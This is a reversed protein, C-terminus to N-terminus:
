SPRPAPPLLPRMWEVVGALSEQSITHPMRYERYTWRANSQDFLERSRRGFQIPLIPDETGHVIHVHLDALSRWRLELHTGEPVYGSNAAVGRFLAPRTLSAAYSMVTGMSFGFFFVQRPDVPYLRLADDIFTNLRDCSERFMAENPEGISAIDYWTFGGGPGFAFPARASLLLLRRDLAPAIGLLDEEDTGRGHLLLLTPHRDATSEEPLLVRHELATAIPKV